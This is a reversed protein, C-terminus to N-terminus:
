LRPPVHGSWGSDRFDRRLEGLITPVAFSRLPKGFAPDFRRVAAMFGVCGVQVLDDRPESTHSYRRALGRVLPMFRELLEELAYADGSERVRAALVEDSEGALLPSRASPVSEALEAPAGM